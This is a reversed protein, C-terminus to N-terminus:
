KKHIKGDVVYVVMEMGDFELIEWDTSTDPIEVIKLNACRGNFDKKELHEVTWILDPNTREIFDHPTEMGLHAAVMESVSFGGYCKNVVIKM